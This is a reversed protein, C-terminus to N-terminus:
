APARRRLKFMLPAPEGKRDMAGMVTDADVARFSDFIPHKDYVMTATLVGRYEVMRITAEGMVANVERGDDEGLCILPYVEDRSVFRKGAWRLGDLLQEGPHGTPVLEGDWEGLLDAEAVAPLADFEDLASV